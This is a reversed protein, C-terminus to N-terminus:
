NSPEQFIASNTVITKLVMLHQLITVPGLRSIPRSRIIQRASQSRSSEWLPKTWKARHRPQPGGGCNWQWSSHKDVNQRIEFPKSTDNLTMLPWQFQHQRWKTPVWEYMNSVHVQRQSISRKNSRWQSCTMMWPWRLDDHQGWKALRECAYQKQLTATSVKTQGQVSYSRNNWHLELDDFTTRLDDGSQRTERV